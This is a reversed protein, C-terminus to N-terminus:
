GYFGNEQKFKERKQEETLRHIAPQNLYQEFKNGFLTGPTLHQQFDGGFWELFKKDIVLKFDDVQYGQNLWQNVLQMIAPSDFRYRSNMQENLYEIIEKRDAHFLQKAESTDSTTLKVIHMHDVQGYPLNLGKVLKYCATRDLKSKQYSGKIIVQKNILTKILRQITSKSFFPLAIAWEDFTVFAWKCGDYIDTSQGLWTHLQYIVIAENTGYRKALTVPFCIYIEDSM